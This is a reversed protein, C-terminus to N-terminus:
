AAIRPSRGMIVSSERALHGLKISKPGPTSPQFHHLTAPTNLRIDVDMCRVCVCFFLGCICMARSGRGRGRGAAVRAARRRREVRGGGGGGAWWGCGVDKM